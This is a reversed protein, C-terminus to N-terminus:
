FISKLSKKRGSQEVTLFSFVVAQFFLFIQQQQLTGNNTAVM